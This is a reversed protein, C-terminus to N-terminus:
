NQTPKVIAITNVRNCSQDISDFPALTDHTHLFSPASSFFFLSPVSCDRHRALSVRLTFCKTSRHSRDVSCTLPNCSPFKSHYVFKKKTPNQFEARYGTQRPTKILHNIKFKHFQESISLFSKSLFNNKKQESNESKRM